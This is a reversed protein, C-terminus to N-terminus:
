CFNLKGHSLIFCRPSFIIATFPLLFPNDVINITATTTTTITTTPTAAYQYMDCFGEVVGSVEGVGAGVDAVV